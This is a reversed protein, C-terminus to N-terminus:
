DEAVSALFLLLTPINAMADMNFFIPLCTNSMATNQDFADQSRTLYALTEM